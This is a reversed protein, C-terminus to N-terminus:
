WIQIEFLYGEEYPTIYVDFTFFFFFVFSVFCGFTFRDLVGTAWQPARKGAIEDAGTYFVIMVSLSVFVFLYCPLSDIYFTKIYNLNWILLCLEDIRM